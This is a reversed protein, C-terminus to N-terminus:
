HHLNIVNDYHNDSKNHLFVYGKEKWFGNIVM